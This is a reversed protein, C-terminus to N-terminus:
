CHKKASPKTSSVRGETVVNDIMMNIGLANGFGYFTITKKNISAASLARSFYEILDNREKDMGPVVISTGSEADDFANAARVILDIRFM